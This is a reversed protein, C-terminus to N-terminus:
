LIQVSHSEVDIWWQCTGEDNTTWNGQCRYSLPPSYSVYYDFKGSSEWLTGITLDGNDYRHKFSTRSKRPAFPSESRAAKDWSPTGWNQRPARANCPKNLIQDDMWYDYEKSYQYGEKELIQKCRVYINSSKYKKGLHRLSVIGTIILFPDVDIETSSKENDDAFKIKKQQIAEQISKKLVICDSTAHSWSHHWKYYKNEVWENKTPIKQWETLRIQGDALLMDFIEEIRSIDFYYYIAEKTRAM